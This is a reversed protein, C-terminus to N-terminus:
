QHVLHDPVPGAYKAEHARRAAYANAHASAASSALQANVANPYKQYHDQANALRVAARNENALHAHQTQM